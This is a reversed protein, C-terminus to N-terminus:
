LHLSRLKLAVCVELFFCRHTLSLTAKYLSLHNSQLLFLSFAFGRVTKMAAHRM